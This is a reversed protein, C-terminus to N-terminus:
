MQSIRYHFVQKFDDNNISSVDKNKVKEGINLKKKYNRTDYETLM